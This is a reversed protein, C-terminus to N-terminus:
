RNIRFGTYDRRSINRLIDYGAKKNVSEFYRLLFQYKSQDLNKAYLYVKDFHLLQLIMNLLLNTKGCGSPGCILMRFNQDPMYPERQRYSTLTDGDMDFNTFNM